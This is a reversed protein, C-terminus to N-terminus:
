LWGDIATIMVPKQLWGSRNLYFGLAEKGDDIRIARIRGAKRAATLVQTAHTLRYMKTLTFVAVDKNTVGSSERIRNLLADAFSDTAAFLEGQAVDPRFGKGRAPDLKWVEDVMKELGRLSKTFHLLLYLDRRTKRLDIPTTYVDSGMERDIRYVLEEFFADEDVVSLEEEKWLYSIIEGLSSTEDSSKVFRYMQPVPIFLFAEVGTSKMLTVVDQIPFQSYGKPDIVFLRKLGPITQGTKLETRAVELADAKQYEIHIHDPLRKALPTCHERVGDIKFRSPDVESRGLDNLLVRIRNQSRNNAFHHNVVAEVIQVATGKNGDAYIGEGCLLDIIHVEDVGPVRELINLYVSVYRSILTAKAQSHPDLHDSTSSRTSAAM